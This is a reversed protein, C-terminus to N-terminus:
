ASKAMVLKIKNNVVACLEYREWTELVNLVERLSETDNSTSLQGLFNDFETSDINIQRHESEETTKENSCLKKM